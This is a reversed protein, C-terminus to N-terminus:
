TKMVFAPRCFGDDSIVWITKWLPTISNSYTGVILYRDNEHRIDITVGHELTIQVRDEDPYQVDTFLLPSYLNLFRGNSFRKPRFGRLKNEIFQRLEDRLHYPVPESHSPLYVVVLETKVHELTEIVYSGYPFDGDLLCDIIQTKSFKDSFPISYTLGCYEPTIHQILQCIYKGVKNSDFCGSSRPVLETAQGIVNKPSADDKRESQGCEDTTAGMAKLLQDEISDSNSMRKWFRRYVSLVELIQLIRFTRVFDTFLGRV